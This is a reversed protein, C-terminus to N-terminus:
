RHPLARRRRPGLFDVHHRLGHGGGDAHPQRHLRGRAVHANVEAAPRRRAAPALSTQLPPPGTAGATPPPSGTSVGVPLMTMSMPPPVVSIATIASDPMTHSVLMRTPPSSISLAMTVKM